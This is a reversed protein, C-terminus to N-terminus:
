ENFDIWLEQRTLPTKTPLLPNNLRFVRRKEQRLKNITEGYHQMFLLEFSGDKLSQELGYTIKDALTKNHKQVYFYVAKPYWILSHQEKIINLHRNNALNTNIELVSRPFYDARQQDLMLYMGKVDSGKVVDIDNLTLIQSDSWTHFQLPRLLKFAGLSNLSSFMTPTSKHVLPIRWGYLGKMTPIRIPRHRQERAITASAVVVDIGQNTALLEFERGKPLSNGYPFAQYTQNKSYSLAHELLISTYIDDEDGGYIVNITASTKASTITTWLALLLVLMSVIRRYMSKKDHNPLVNEPLIKLM